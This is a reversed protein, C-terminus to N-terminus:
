EKRKGAGPQDLSKVIATIRQVNGYRDMVILSNPPLAALHAAQSLMPRLIPVLGGSDVNTTTVVRTVFMDAAIRSDDSQGIPTAFFRMLFDPMINVRGDVEVAGFGNARLIALLLPYTVEEQRVGGLYIEPPVRGDLLFEKKSERAVRDILPQLPVLPHGPLVAPQPAAPPAAQAPPAQQVPPPQNPQAPAQARAGTVTAALCAALWLSRTAAITM